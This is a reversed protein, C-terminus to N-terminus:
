SGQHKTGHKMSDAGGNSDTTGSDGSSQQFSDMCQSKLDNDQISGCEANMREKRFGPNTKLDLDYQQSKHQNVQADGKDSSSDQAWAMPAVSILLAAALATFTTKM